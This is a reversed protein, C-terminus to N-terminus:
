EKKLVILSLDDHFRSSGVFRDIEDLLRQGIEEASYTALRPLLEELRDEGFFEGSTNKAETLGDSYILLTEGEELFIQQEISQIKQSLGIATSGKPLEVIEVDRVIMPPLHGANLIRLCNSDATLELYVLSAFGNTTSDRYFTDNIKDGLKALSDFDPAVARVIAQLKVMLLAAALGKGAVDALVLSFRNEAIQVIDVLDGGIENAPRTFLWASWGPIKPNPDPSLAKQVARATSLEENAHLGDKLELMLVFLLIAFGILARDNSQSSALLIIVAVSVLIRRTPTLKLFLSKLLWLTTFFWRKVKGMGELQERRHDDLFAGKLEDFDRTITEKFDGRQFDQRLTQAISPDSKAKTTTKTMSEQLDQM